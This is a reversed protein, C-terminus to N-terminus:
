HYQDEVEKAETDGLDTEAHRAECLLLGVNCWTALDFFDSRLITVVGGCNYRAEATVTGDSDEVVVRTLQNQYDWYFETAVGTSKDPESVM